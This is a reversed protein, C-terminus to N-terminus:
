IMLRIRKEKGKRADRRAGKSLFSVGFMLCSILPNACFHSPSSHAPPPPPVPSITFACACSYTSGKQTAARCLSISNHRLPPTTYCITRTSAIRNVAGGGSVLRHSVGGFYCMYLWYIHLWYMFGKCCSGNSQCNRYNRPARVRRRHTKILRQLTGM